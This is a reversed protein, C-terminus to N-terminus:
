ARRGSPSNSARRHQRLTRRLGPNHGSAFAVDETIAQKLADLSASTSGPWHSWPGNSALLRRAHDTGLRGDLYLLTAMAHPWWAERYEDDPDPPLALARDLFASLLQADRETGLRALAPCYSWRYGGVTGGLLDREIRERLDARRGAAIIWTVALCQRWGGSDLLLVLDEAPARRAARRLRWQFWRQQPRPMLFARGMLKDYRRGPTVWRRTLRNLRADSPDGEARGVGVDKRISRWSM